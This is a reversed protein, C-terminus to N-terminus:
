IVGDDGVSAGLKGRGESAFKGADEFIVNAEGGGIVGLSISLSFSGILFHFGIKPDEADMIRLFPSVEEGRGFKDM